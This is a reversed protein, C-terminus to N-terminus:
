NDSKAKKRETYPYLFSLFAAISSAIVAIPFIHEDIWVMFTGNLFVLGTMQGFVTIFGLVVFILLTLVFLNSVIKNAM